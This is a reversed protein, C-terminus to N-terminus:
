IRRLARRAITAWRAAYRDAESRYGPDFDQYIGNALALAASAVSRRSM